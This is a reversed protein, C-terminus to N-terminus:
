KKSMGQIIYPM